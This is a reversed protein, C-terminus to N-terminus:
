LAVTNMNVWFPSKNSSCSKGTFSGAAGGAVADFGGKLVGAADDGDDRVDPPGGGEVSADLGGRAAVCGAGDLGAAGEM